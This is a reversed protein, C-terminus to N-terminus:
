GSFVCEISGISGVTMKNYNGGLMSTSVMLKPASVHHQIETSLLSSLFVCVHPCLFVSRACVYVVYM